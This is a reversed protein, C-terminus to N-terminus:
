RMRYTLSTILRVEHYGVDETYDVVAMVSFHRSLMGNATGSYRTTSPRTEIIVGESNLFRVVSLSSSFDGSVYWMRGLGRGVSVYTSDYPGTPREYRAYSASVDFSTGFTNGSHGGLSLRGTAEDDRNNQDRYYGAWVDAQRAVRVIVRGGAMSYQLGAIAEPTLPRGNLVDDTLRQADLSRGRNYTGNLELRPGASARVNALFYSLGGEATGDAPGTLDVEAAQYLFFGSPGPVYNTFTLLNRQLAGSQTVRSYGVVHRQMFGRELTFYGGAKQVGEAYGTDYVVPEAGAFAGASFHLRDSQAPAQRYEFLGGALAGATGLDPLWMHGARARFQGREGFRGGVYGDYLAVRDPRGLTTYHSYRLDAAAELGPADVDPVRFTFMTALETDRRTGAGEATRSATNVLFTARGDAPPRSAPTAGSGTMPTSTQAFASTVSASAVLAGGLLLWGLAPVIALGATSGPFRTEGSRTGRGIAAAREGGVVGPAERTM